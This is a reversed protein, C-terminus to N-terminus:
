PSVDLRVYNVLHKCFVFMLKRGDLSLSDFLLLAMNFLKLQHFFCCHRCLKVVADVFLEYLLLEM